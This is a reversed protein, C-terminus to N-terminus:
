ITDKRLFSVLYYNLAPAQRWSLRFKWQGTLYTKHRMNFSGTLENLANEKQL